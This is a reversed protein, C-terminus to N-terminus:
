PARHGNGLVHCLQVPERIQRVLGQLIWRSGPLGDVLETAVPGYISVPVGERDVSAPEGILELRKLLVWRGGNAVVDEVTQIGHLRVRLGELLRRGICGGGVGCEGPDERAAFKVLHMAGGPPVTQLVADLQPDEALERAEESRRGRWNDAVHKDPGQDDEGNERE